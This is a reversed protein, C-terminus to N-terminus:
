LRQNYHPWQLCECYCADQVQILLRKIMVKPSTEHFTGVEYLSSKFRRQPQWFFQNFDEPKSM